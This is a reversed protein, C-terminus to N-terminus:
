YDGLPLTFGLAFTLAHAAPVSNRDAGLSLYGHAFRTSITVMALDFTYFLTHEWQAGSRWAIGAAQFRQVPTYTLVGVVDLMEFVSYNVRTDVLLPLRQRYDREDQKGSLLPQVHVYGNADYSKNNTDVRARTYPASRWFINGLMNETKLRLTWAPAPRAVLDLDFAFGRGRPASVVRKFLVDRSYYYDVTVENLDYDKNSTATIAGRMSGYILKDSNFVSAGLTLTLWSDYNMRHFVRLGSSRAHEIDLDITYRKGVELAQKNKLLSYLQATDASFRAEGDDRWFVGVGWDRYEVGSEAQAHQLATNGATVEGSWDRTFQRFTVPASYGFGAAQTYWKAEDAVSDHVCAVCVVTAIWAALRM